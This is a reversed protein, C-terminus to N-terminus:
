IGGSLVKIVGLVFFLIMTLIVLLEKAEVLVDKFLIISTKLEVLHTQLRTLPKPPTLQESM